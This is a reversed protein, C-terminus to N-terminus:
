LYGQQLTSNLLNCSEGTSKLKLRLSLKELKVMYNLCALYM